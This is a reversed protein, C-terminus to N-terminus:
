SGRIPTPLYYKPPSYERRNQPDVFEKEEDNYPLYRGRSIGLADFGDRMSGLMVNAYSLGKAVAENGTGREQIFEPTQVGQHHYSALNFV